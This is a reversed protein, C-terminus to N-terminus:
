EQKPLKCIPLQGAALKEEAEAKRMYEPHLDNYHLVDGAKVKEYALRAVAAANQYRVEKPAFFYDRGLIMGAESLTELIKPEYADIGDGYFVVPCCAEKVSRSVIELVDTLMCPCGELYGDVIGYVQGRRANLIGVVVPECAPVGNEGAVAGAAGVAGAFDAGWLTRVNEKYLFADLTPVSVVPLGLAQGLARATSVGIRIGTFSGPGASVAIHSLASKPLAQGDSTKVSDLLRQVMPLLDKLHNMEDASTMEGLVRCDTVADVCEASDGSAESAVGSVCKEEESVLAVSGFPGTTEIALIYM